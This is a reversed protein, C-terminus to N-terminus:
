RPIISLFRTIWVETNAAASREIAAHPPLLEESLEDFGFAEEALGEADEAPPECILTADVLLPVTSVSSL